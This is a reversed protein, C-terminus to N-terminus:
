CDAKSLAWFIAGPKPVLEAEGVEAVLLPLSETEM